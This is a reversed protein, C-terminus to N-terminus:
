QLDSRQFPNALFLCYNIIAKASPRISQKVTPAEMNKSPKTNVEIIWPKASIDLALDIGLEGFLGEESQGVSSAVELALEHLMKTVDIAVKTDLIEKLLKSVKQIEGGRALNSVFENPSSIRAVSSTVKWLNMSNLHCLFRFDLIRDQFSLLPIGQQIIFAQNALRPKIAKFLERITPFNKEIDGSFTTYDLIYEEGHREIRIIKKGQSGHIPKIFIKEHKQLFEELINFSLLLHTEPLYPLLHEQQALSQHTEWKNLFHDNFFPIHKDHLMTLLQEYPTSKERKRSHIRNHVVHATPVETLKWCDGNWTYGDLQNNARNFEKLSFVYFFVHNEECYMALEETFDQISGFSPGQETERVETLLGVFLGISIMDSNQHFHLSLKYNLKPLRCEKMLLPHLSITSEELSVPLITVDTFFDGCQFHYKKIPSLSWKVFLGECMHIVYKENSANMLIEIKESVIM